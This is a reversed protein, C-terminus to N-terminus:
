IKNTVIMQNDAISICELKPLFLSNTSCIPIRLSATVLCSFEPAKGPDCKRRYSRGTHRGRNKVRELLGSKEEGQECALTPAIVTGEIRWTARLELSRLCLCTDGLEVELSLPFSDSPGM